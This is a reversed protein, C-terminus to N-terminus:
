LTCASTSLFALLSAEFRVPVSTDLHCSFSPVPVTVLPLVPNTVPSVTYLSIAFVFVARSVLALVPSSLIVSAPLVTIRLTALPATFTTFPWFVVTVVPVSPSAVVYATLTDESAILFTTCGSSLLFALVSAELKVLVSTDLHCSFSPVPVTVFPFVPNTVPSVTYLSIAFVFVASSVLALVPSSLIVSAPLVTIRLTALLATFTTFPWFVVTVVPM